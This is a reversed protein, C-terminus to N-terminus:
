HKPDTENQYPDPDITTALYFFVNIKIIIMQKSISQESPAPTGLHIVLQISGGSLVYAGHWVQDRVEGGQSSGSGGISGKFHSCLM